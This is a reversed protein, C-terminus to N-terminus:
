GIPVCCKKGPDTDKALRSIPTAEPCKENTAQNTGGMEGCKQDLSKDFIKAKGGFIMLMIVLAIIGIGIWIMLDVSIAGRKSM